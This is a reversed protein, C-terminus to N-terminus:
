RANNEAKERQYADIAESNRAKVKRGRASIMAGTWLAVERALLASFIPLPDSLGSRFMDSAGDPTEFIIGSNLLFAGITGFYVILGVVVSGIVWSWWGARNIIAALLIMGVLFFLVPIYFAAQGLFGLLVGGNITSYVIVMLVVLLIAYAVTALVSLLIGFGRNSKRKPPQPATVYVVNQPAAAPPADHRALPAPAAHTPTAAAAAPAFSATDRRETAADTPATEDIARAAPTEHSQENQTVADRVEPVDRYSDLPLATTDAVTPEPEVLVPPANDGAREDHRPEATHQGDGTHETTEDDGPKHSDM